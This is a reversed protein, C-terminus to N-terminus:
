NKRADKNNRERQYFSRPKIFLSQTFLGDKATRLHRHYYLPKGARSKSIKKIKWIFIPISMFLAVLVGVIWPLGPILVLVIGLVVAWFMTSRLTSVIESHTASYFATQPEEELQTLTKAPKSSM